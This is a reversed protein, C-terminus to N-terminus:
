GRGKLTADNRAQIIRAQERLEAALVNSCMGDGRAYREARAHLIAAAEDRAEQRAREKENELADIEAADCEVGIIWRHLITGDSKNPDDGESHRAANRVINIAIARAARDQLHQFYGPDGRYRLQEQPSVAIMYYFNNIAVKM